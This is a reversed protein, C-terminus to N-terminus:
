TGQKCSSCFWTPPVLPTPGRVRREVEQLEKQWREEPFRSCPLHHEPGFQQGGPRARACWCDRAACLSPSGVLHPGGGVRNNALNFLPRTVAHEWLAGSRYVELRHNISCESLQYDSLLPEVKTYSTFVGNTQRTGQEHWGSFHQWGVHLYCCNLNMQTVHLHCTKELSSM